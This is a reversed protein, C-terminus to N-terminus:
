ENDAVMEALEAQVRHLRGENYAIAQELKPDKKGEQSNKLQMIRCELMIREEEAEKYAKVQGEVLWKRIYFIPNLKASILNFKFPDVRGLGLVATVQDVNGETPVVDPIEEMKKTVEKANMAVINLAAFFDSRRDYLYNIEGQLIPREGVQEPDLTQTEETVVYLLLKRSYRVVFTLAEQFQILNAGLFTVAERVVDNSFYNDFLKELMPYHEDLNDLINGTVAIMNGRYKTKVNNDFAKQFDQLAPSKWKLKYIGAQEASHYQSLTENKLEKKSDDLVKKLSAKSFEPLVAQLFPTIKM